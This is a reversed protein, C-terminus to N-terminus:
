IMAGLDLAVKRPDFWSGVNIPNHWSKEWVPYFSRVEHMQGRINDRGYKAALHDGISVVALVRTATDADRFDVYLRELSDRMDGINKIRKENLGFIQARQELTFEYRATVNLSEQILCLETIPISDDFSAAKYEANAAPTAPAAQASQSILPPPLALALMSVGLCLMLKRRLM